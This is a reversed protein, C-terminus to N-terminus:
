APEGVVIHSHNGSSPIITTRYGWRNLEAALQKLGDAGEALHIEINKVWRGSPFGSGIESAAWGSRELLERIEGAFEWFEPIYQDSSMSTMHGAPPLSSRLAVEIGRLDLGYFSRRADKPARGTVFRFFFVAVFRAFLTLMFAVTGFTAPVVITGIKANEESTLVSGWVTAATVSVALAIDWMQIGPSYRAARRARRGVM